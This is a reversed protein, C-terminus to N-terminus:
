KVGYIINGIIELAWKHERPLSEIQEANLHLGEKKLWATRKKHYIEDASLPTDPQYKALFSKM